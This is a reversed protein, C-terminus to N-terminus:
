QDETQNNLIQSFFAVLDNPSNPGFCRELNEATDVAAEESRPFLDAEYAEFAAEADDPNAIIARALDAADKLALNAGEGAFPSMLHAADGLITVGRVRAWKHDTPLAYIPRTVPESDANTILSLLSPAWGEFEKATAFLIDAAAIGALTDVWERPKQLAAYIHITGDTERHGLIGRGPSLAMLMGDGAIAARADFGESSKNTHYVDIFSIGSYIPVAPSLIPRIKSWAGDAGVLVDSVFTNGNAFTLEHKGEAGVAVVKTLKHGWRIIGEAPLSNLLIQRLDERKIEPRGGNGDDPIDVLM